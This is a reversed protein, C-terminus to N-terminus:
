EAKASEASAAAKHKEVIEEEAKLWFDRERGAPCGAQRWLLNALELIERSRQESPSTMTNM